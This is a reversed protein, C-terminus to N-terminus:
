GRSKWIMIAIVLIIGILAAFSINFAGILYSVLLAFGGLVISTIPNWAGFAMLVLFIFLTIIFGSTGWNILIVRYDFSGQDAVFNTGDPNFVTLVYNFITTNWSPISCILTTSASSASTYCSQIFGSNNLTNVVLQSRTAIGSADSVLCNLIATANTFTCVATVQGFQKYISYAPANVTFTIGYINTAILLGSNINVPSFTAVLSGSRDTIVFIYPSGSPQIQMTGHGNYDTLAQTVQLYANLTPFYRQAAVIYNVLPNQAYDKVTIDLESSLASQLLYLLSSQNSTINLNVFNLYTRQFYGSAYYNAYFLVSSINNTSSCISTYDTNTLNLQFGFTANSLTTINISLEITANKVVNQTTEDKIYYTFIPTTIDLPISTCNTLIPANSWYVGEEWLEATPASSLSQWANSSNYCYVQTINAGTFNVDIKLTLNNNFCSIPITNNTTFNSQDSRMVSYQWLASYAWSPITYNIYLIGGTSLTPKARDKTAYNGDITAAGGNLFGGAGYAGILYSGNGNTTLSGCSGSVNASEQYCFLANAKPIAFLFLAFVAILIIKKDTRFVGQGTLADM